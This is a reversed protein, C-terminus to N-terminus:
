QPMLVEEGAGSDWLGRLSGDPTLAYVVPTTSGWDVTLLNGSLTGTGQYNSTGVKWDLHQRNGQRTILVDGSYSRGDPNRGRVWYRGSPVGL